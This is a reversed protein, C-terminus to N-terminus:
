GGGFPLLNITLIHREKLVAELGERSSQNPLGNNEIEFLMPDVKGSSSHTFNVRGPSRLSVEELFERM